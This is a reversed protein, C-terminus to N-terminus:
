KWRWTERAYRVIKRRMKRLDRTLLDEVPRGRVTKPIEPVKRKGVGYPRELVDRTRGGWRLVCRCHYDRPAHAQARIANVRMHIHYPFAGEIEDGRYHSGHLSLCLPCTVPSTERADYIWWHHSNHAKESGVHELLRFM